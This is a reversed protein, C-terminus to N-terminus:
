PHLEDLILLQFNKCDKHWTSDRILYKQPFFILIFLINFLHQFFVKYFFISINKFSQLVHTKPMTDQCGRKYPSYWPMLHSFLSKWQYIIGGPLSNENGRGAFALKSYAAQYGPTDDVEIFHDDPLLSDDEPLEFLQVLCQLMPPRCYLNLTVFRLGQM